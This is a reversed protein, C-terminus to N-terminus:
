QVIFQRSTIFEGKTFLSAFYVGPPYDSVSIVKQFTQSHDISFREVVQGSINSVRFEVDSQVEKFDVEFFTDSNSPNPFVKFSSLYELEITNTTLAVVIDREEFQCGSVDTAIFSYNGVSISDLVFGSGILDGSANFWSIDFNGRGGSLVIEIRGNLSGSSAMIIDVSELKIIEPQM